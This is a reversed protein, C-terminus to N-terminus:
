QNSQNKASRIKEQHLDCATLLHDRYKQWFIVGDKSDMQMVERDSITRWQDISHEICGIMMFDDGILINYDMGLIRMPPISTTNLRPRKRREIADDIYFDRLTSLQGVSHKEAHRKSRRCKQVPFDVACATRQDSPFNNTYNRTANVLHVNNNAERIRREPKTEPQNDQDEYLARYRKSHKPKAPLANQAQIIRRSKNPFNGLLTAESHTFHTNM